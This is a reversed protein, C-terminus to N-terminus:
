SYAIYILILFFHGMNENDLSQFTNVNQYTKKWDTKWVIPCYISDELKNKVSLFSTSLM